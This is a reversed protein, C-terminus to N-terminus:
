SPILLSLVGPVAATLNLFGSATKGFSSLPLITNVVAAPRCFIYRSQKPCNMFIKIISFRNLILSAINWPLEKGIRIIYFIVAM